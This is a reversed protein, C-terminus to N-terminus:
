PADLIRQAQVRSPGNPHRALYAKAAAKARTKDTTELLRMREALAAEALASSPYKQEFAEFRQIALATNGARKAEVAAAFADNQEALVAPPVPPPAPQQTPAVAATNSAPASKVITPQPKPAPALATTAPAPATAPPAIAVLPCASPWHEGAAVRTEAGGNRVVVVGEEVQVRTRVGPACPEEAVRAVRFITGRVEVEADATRVLFRENAHLKAVHARLAGAELSYIQTISQEVVRVEGLPEIDIRTGTSLSLAASGAAGVVIRDAAVVSGSPPAAAAHFATADGELHASVNPTSEVARALSRDHKKALSFGAVLLAAAAAVVGGTVVWRRRARRKKEARLAQRVVEIGRARSRDDVRPAEASALVQAARKTLDPPASM